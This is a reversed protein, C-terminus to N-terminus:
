SNSFNRPNRNSIVRVNDKLQTLNFLIDLIFYKGMDAENIPDNIAIWIRVYSVMFGPNSSKWKNKGAITIFQRTCLDVVM